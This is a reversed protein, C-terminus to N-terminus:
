GLAAILHRLEDAIEGPDSVTAAIERKAAERFRRRLRHLAVRFAGEGMGLEAAVAAQTRGDRDGDGTLWPKLAEFERLSGSSAAERSVVELSREVVSIAWTRDFVADDPPRAVGAGDVADTDGALPDLETHSANAGRKARAARLRQNALFHKLAGLLYSRFRGRSPDAGHLGHRELIGEFFAHALDRAQDDTRSESRLVAVVPAYYAACLDSLAQQADSSKGQSALIRTWHTTAFVIPGRPLPSPDPPSPTM